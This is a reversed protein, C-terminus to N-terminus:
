QKNKQVLICTGCKEGLWFYFMFLMVSTYYDRMWYWFLSMALWEEGNTDMQHVFVNTSRPVRICFLRESNEKKWKEM